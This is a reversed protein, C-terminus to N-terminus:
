RSGLTVAEAPLGGVELRAGAAIAENRIMCSALRRGDPFDVSRIVSGAKQGESTVPSGSEVAGAVWLLSWTQNTHGRAFIRHLVEQGVYCGKAHSVHIRDFEPGLEPPLTKEGIDSGMAPRGALLMRREVEAPDSPGPAEPRLVDWGGVSTRDHRLAISAAPPEDLGGGQVTWLPGGLDEWEVDEMVVFDTLRQILPGPPEAFAVYEQPGTRGITLLSEIRGQRSVLCSRAAGGEALSSLDQTVQGQLWGGADPGWIRVAGSGPVEAWVPRTEQIM